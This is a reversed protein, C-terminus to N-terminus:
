LYMYAYKTKPAVITLEQKARTVGVYFVRHESDDDLEMCKYTQKTIDTLLVVHDAEGGKVGHITSVNVMPEEELLGNELLRNSYEIKSHNWSGVDAGSSLTNRDAKSLYPVGKIKFPIGREICLETLSRMHWTNRSLLYYTQDKNFELSDIDSLKNIRGMKTENGTYNKKVRKSIYKTIGKAFFVLEPPLRYSYELIKSDGKLSSFIGIDAGAFSFIAQDDDGAVYTRKVNKFAQFVFAWQLSTLDQAEDIIAV